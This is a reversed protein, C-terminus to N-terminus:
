FPIDDDDGVEAHAPTQSPQSSSEAAQGGSNLAKPALAINQATVSIKSRKAGTEKDEWTEQNLKGEVYLLDSKNVYKNLVEATKGWATVDVFTAKEQTQGDKGKYKENTVLSFKALSNNELEKFEVDRTVRGILMVKNVNM